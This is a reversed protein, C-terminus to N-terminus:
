LRLRHTNVIQEIQTRLESAWTDQKEVDSCQMWDDSTYIDFFAHTEPPFYNTIFVSHISCQYLSSYGSSTKVIVGETDCLNNWHPEQRYKDKEDFYGEDIPFAPRFAQLFANKALRQTKQYTDADSSM